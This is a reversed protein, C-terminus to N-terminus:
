DNFKLANNAAHIVHELSTPVARKKMWKMPFSHWYHKANDVTNWEYLGLFGGTKRGIAWTKSRFGEQAIIFPIPLLSLKMNTSMSMSRFHFTVHFIAEPEKNVEESPDLVLKRFVEYDDDERIIKGVVATDFHIRGQM